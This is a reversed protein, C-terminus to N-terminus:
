STAFVKRLCTFTRIYQTYICNRTHWTIIQLQNNNTQKNKTTVDNQSLKKVTFMTYM